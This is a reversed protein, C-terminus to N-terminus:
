RIVRVAGRAEHRRADVGLKFSNRVPDQLTRYQYVVSFVLGLFAGFPNKELPLKEEVGAAFSYFGRPLFLVSGWRVRVPGLISRIMSLLEHIGYFRADRYVTTQFPGKMKRCAGLISYKNMVGLFIRDRSVRIAERLAAAPDRCFELSTILTVIDFENDSFPLDEALGSRLEARDELKLRAVDLMAGSPEVGTVHCGKEQFFLLHHGTGCGVDLIREGPRPALLDMILKKERADMYRGIPTALWHDYSGAIDEGFVKL